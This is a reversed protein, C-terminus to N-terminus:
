FFGYHGQEGGRVEVQTVQGKILKIRFISLSATTNTPRGKLEFIIQILM